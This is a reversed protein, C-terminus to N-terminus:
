GLHVKNVSVEDLAIWAGTLSRDCTRNYQEDQHRAQGPKGPGKLLLISHLCKVNPGIIQQLVPTVAPHSLLQFMVPSVKRPLQITHTRRIVDEDYEDPDAPRLERIEGREGRCVPVAEDRLTGIEDSAM